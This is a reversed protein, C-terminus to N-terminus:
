VPDNALRYEREQLIRNEPLDARGGEGGYCATVAADLKRPQFLRYSVDHQLAVQSGEGDRMEYGSNGTTIDTIDYPSAGPRRKDRARFSSVM